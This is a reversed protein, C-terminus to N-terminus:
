NNSSLECRKNRVNSIPIALHSGMTILHVKLGVLDSELSCNELLQLPSITEFTEFSVFLNLSDYSVREIEIEKCVLM